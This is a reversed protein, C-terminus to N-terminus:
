RMSASFSARKTCASSLKKYRKETSEPTEEKEHPTTRFRPDLQNKPITKEIGKPANAVQSDPAKDFAKTTIKDGVSVGSGSVVRVLTTYNDVLVAEVEAKPRGNRYIYWHTGPTVNDAIGRNVTIEGSESVNVVMGELDAWVPLSWAVGVLFLIFSCIYSVRWRSM